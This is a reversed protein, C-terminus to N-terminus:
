AAEPFLTQQKRKKFRRAIRMFRAADVLEGVAHRHRIRAARVIRAVDKLGQPIWYGRNDSVVEWGIKQLEAIVDQVDRPHVHLIGAAEARTMANDPGHQFLSSLLKAVQETM